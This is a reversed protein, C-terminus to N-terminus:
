PAVYGADFLHVLFTDADAAANTKAVGCAIQGTTATILKGTTVAPTVLANLAVLAGAISNVDGQKCFTFVVGDAVDHLAIGDIREGAVAALEYINPKTKLKVPYGATIAGDAIGTEKQLHNEGVGLEQAM